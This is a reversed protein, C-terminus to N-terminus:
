LTLIFKLDQHIFQIKDAEVLLVCGNLVKTKRKKKGAVPFLIHLTM